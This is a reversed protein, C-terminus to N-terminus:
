RMSQSIRDTCLVPIKRKSRNPDFMQVVDPSVQRLFSFTALTKMAHFHSMTTVECPCTGIHDRLFVQFMVSPKVSSLNPWLDCALPLPAFYLFIASHFLSLSQGQGQLRQLKREVTPFRRSTLLRVQSWDACMIVLHLIWYSAVCSLILLFKTEFMPIHRVGGNDHRLCRCAHKATDMLSMDALMRRKLCRSQLCRSRTVNIPLSKSSRPHEWNKEGHLTFCYTM